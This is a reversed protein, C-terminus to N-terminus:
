ADPEDKGLALVTIWPSLANGREASEAPASPPAAAGSGDIQGLLMSALEAVTRGHILQILPVSIKLEQEVGNKVEVAMLSDIGFTTLPRNVDVRSASMKLVRAVKEQLYDELMPHREAPPASRIAEPSLGPPAEAPIEREALRVSGTARVAAAAGDGARAFLRYSAIGNV